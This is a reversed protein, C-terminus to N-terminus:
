KLKQGMNNFMDLRIQHRGHEFKENLWATVILTIEEFSNMRCGLCLVNSDNHLRSLRADNPTRCLAARIGQFRNAVMSVGIGSGCLLIGRANESVVKQCVKIAFEPYHCSESSLPGLDEVDNHLFEVLKNKEIFAAHDGGVVIKM